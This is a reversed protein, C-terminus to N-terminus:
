DTRVTGHLIMETLNMVNPEVGNPEWPEPQQPEVTRNSVVM